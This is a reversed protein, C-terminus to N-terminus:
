DRQMEGFHSKLEKFFDPPRPRLMDMPVVTARSHRIVEGSVGNHQRMAHRAFARVVLKARPTAQDLDPLELVPDEHTVMSLRLVHDGGSKWVEIKPLGDDKGREGKQLPALRRPGPPPLPQDPVLAQALLEQRHRVWFNAKDNPIRVTKVEELKTTVQVEFYVAFDTPRNTAFHYNHTMQLPSLYYSYTFRASIGAAFQPGDYPAAPIMSGPPTQWPGSNAALVYLGILSLHGVAFVSGAVKFWFPIPRPATPM